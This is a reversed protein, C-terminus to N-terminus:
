GWRKLVELIDERTKMLNDYRGKYKRVLFTMVKRSLESAAESKEQWRPFRLTKIERLLEKVDGILEHTNVKVHRKLVMVLAYELESLGLEKRERNRRHIKEAIEFLEQFVIIIPTVVISSTTSTSAMRSRAFNTSVIM